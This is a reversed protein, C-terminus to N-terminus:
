FVLLDKVDLFEHILLVVTWKSRMVYASLVAYWPQAKDATEAPRSTGATIHAWVIRARM